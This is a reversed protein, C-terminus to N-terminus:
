PGFGKEDALSRLRAPFIMTTSSTTFAATTPVSSARPLENGESTEAPAGDDGAEADGDLKRMLRLLKEELPAVQFRPARAILRM